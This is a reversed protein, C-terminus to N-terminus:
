LRALILEATVRLLYYASGNIAKDRLADTENLFATMQDQAAPTQGREMSRQAERIKVRLRQCIGVQDIWRLACSEDLLGALRAALTVATQPGLPKVIGITTGKVGNVVMLTDHVAATDGAVDTVVSDTPGVREAWYPVLGPLGVGTITLPPLSQGGGFAGGLPTWEAIARSRMRTVVLWSGRPGPAEARVIGPDDVTFSALSDSTGRNVQVSCSFVLTDGAQRVVTPKVSVGFPAQAHVPTSCGSVTLIATALILYRFRQM